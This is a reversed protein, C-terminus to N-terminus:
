RMVGSADNWRRAVCNLYSAAACRRPQASLPAAAAIKAKHRCRHCRSHWIRPTPETRCRRVHGSCIPRVFDLHACEPTLATIEYVPHLLDVSIGSDVHSPLDYAARSARIVHHSRNAESKGIKPTTKSIRFLKKAESSPNKLPTPLHKKPKPATNTPRHVPSSHADFGRNVQLSDQAADRTVVAPNQAKVHM